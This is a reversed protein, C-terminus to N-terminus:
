KNQMVELKQLNSDSINWVEYGYALDTKYSYQLTDEKKGDVDWHKEKTAHVFRWYQPLM